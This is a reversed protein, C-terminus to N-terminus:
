GNMVMLRVSLFAEKSSGITPKMPDLKLENNAEYFWYKAIEDPFEVAIPERRKWEGHKRENTGNCVQCGANGQSWQQSLPHLLQRGNM